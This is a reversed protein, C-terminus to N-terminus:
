PSREPLRPAAALNSPRDDGRGPQIPGLGAGDVLCGGAGVAARRAARDGRWLLGLGVLVTVFCFAHFMGDWFMNVQENLQSTRPVRNSLMSHVQLIQHFVIGDFFGGIGLTVAAAVLPRHNSAATM